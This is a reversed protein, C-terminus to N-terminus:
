PNQRADRGELPKDSGEVVTSHVGRIGKGRRAVETEGKYARDRAPREARPNPDGM